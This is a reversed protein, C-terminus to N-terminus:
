HHDNEEDPEPLQVAVLRPVDGQLLEQREGLELLVREHLPDYTVQDRTIIDSYKVQLQANQLISHNEEQGLQYSEGGQWTYEVLVAIALHVELLKDLPNFM